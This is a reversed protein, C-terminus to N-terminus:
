RPWLEAVLENIKAFHHDDHECMFYVWEVVNMRRKLRPHMASHAIQEATLGKMREVLKMRATYFALGLEHPDADNHRAEETKRNSMDAATLEDAGAIFDGLRKEGLEELDLLHGVHEQVSWKNHIRTTRIRKPLSTFELQNVVASFRLLVSPFLEPPLQHDFRRQMWNAQKVALRRHPQYDEVEVGSDAPIVVYTGGGFFFPSSVHIKWDTGRNRLMVVMVNDPVISQNGIGAHTYLVYAITGKVVEGLIQFREPPFMGEAFEAEAPGKSATERQWFTRSDNTELYRILFESDSLEFLEDASPMRPTLATREVQPVYVTRFLFISEPDALAVLARWDRKDKLELAHKFVETPSAPNM